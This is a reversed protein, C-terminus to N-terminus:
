LGQLTVDRALATLTGGDVQNLPLPVEEPLLGNNGGALVMGSGLLGGVIPLGGQGGLLGGILPLGGDDGGLLDGLLLLDGDGGLLVGVIPLGGEGGLLDGVLPLGGASDGGLLGGVIPLGGEGGLLGGVIPLGGEGGLLGGVIPLGGEGGLLGGVIPLGGEGGLLGGVIPLGGEGGLLGGVIPLGGEGGLLGGVLPLGGESGGLLGGILPLGDTGGLLPLSGDGGAIPLLVGGMDGDGPGVLDVETLDRVVVLLGTPLGLGGLSPLAGNSLLVIEEGNVLPIGNALLGGNVYLASLPTGIEVLPASLNGLLPALNSGAIGFLPDTLGQLMGDEAALDALPSGDALDMALTNVLIQLDDTAAVANGTLVNKLTSDLNIVAHDLAAVINGGDQAWSGGSAALLALGLGASKLCHKTKM